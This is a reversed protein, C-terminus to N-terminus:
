LSNDDTHYRRWRGADAAALSLLILLGAFCDLREDFYGPNRKPHQYAALGGESAKLGAKRMAPVFMGDYDVLKLSGDAQVLINGHQLDGHAVQRHGLGLMLDMWAQCLQRNDIQGRRQFQEGLFHDLPTGHIWEMVLAPFWRRTRSVFIGEADYSFGVLN